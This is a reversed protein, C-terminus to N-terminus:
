RNAPQGPIIQATGRKRRRWLNFAILLFLPVIVADDVWGILPIIDLIIDVPSAGYILAVALSIVAGLPSKRYSDFGSGAPPM